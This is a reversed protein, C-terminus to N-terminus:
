KVVGKVAETKRVFQEPCVHNIQVSVYGDRITKGFFLRAYSPIPFYIEQRWESAGVPEIGELRLFFLKLEGLGRELVEKLEEKEWGEAVARDAIGNMTTKVCQIDHLYFALFLLSLLSFLSICMVFAAEVTYSGRMREGGGVDAFVGASLVV